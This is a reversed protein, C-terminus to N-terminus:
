VGEEKQQYQTVAASIAATVAASKETVSSVIPAESPEETKQTQFFKGLLSISIVMILLFSFVMGMGLLALIGSQSLMEMITM